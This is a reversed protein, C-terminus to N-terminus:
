KSPAELHRPLAIVLRQDGNSNTTAQIEGLVM